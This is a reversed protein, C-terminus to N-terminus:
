RKPRNQKKVPKKPCIKVGAIVYFNDFIHNQNNIGFRNYGKAFGPDIFCPSKGM